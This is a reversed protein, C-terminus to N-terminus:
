VMGKLNGATENLKEVGAKTQSIGASVEKAGANINNMAEVIQKIAAAQQQINLSIQQTNEAASQAMGAVTNFAEVADRTRQIGQEATKTGEEAAMVASNTAKQIDVVIANVKEASKKGQDALKRVEQAIIAFGKGHEGARVAEVAANLALMNIQGAIDTVLTAIGGIHGTQESLKLIHEAVAGIKEKLVSMGELNGKMVTAKEGSLTIVEQARGAATGAQESSLRLSAGLEEISTTTQNVSAAQQSAVREHQTVTTAIQTSSTSIDNSAVRITWSIRWAIWLGIAISVAIVIFPSFFAVARLLRLSADQEEHVELFAEFEKEKFGAITAALDRPLKLAEGKKFESIAADTRGTDVLSILENSIEIVKNELEIAKNLKEKQEPDKVTKVILESLKKFDKEGEEYSKLSIENKALLYGRVSRQMKAVSMELDNTTCILFHAAKVKEAQTDVKMVELYVVVAVAIFLLLTPVYGFVIRYKLKWNSFM